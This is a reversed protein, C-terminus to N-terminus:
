AMSFPTFTNMSFGIVTSPGVVRRISAKPSSAAFFFRLTPTPSITRWQLARCASTSRIRSPCIPSNIAKRAYRM